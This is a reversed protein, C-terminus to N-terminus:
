ADAADPKNSAQDTRWDWWGKVSLATFIVCAVVTAVSHALMGFVIWALNAVVSLIWGSKLKKGLLYISTANLVLALWDICYYRVMTEWM